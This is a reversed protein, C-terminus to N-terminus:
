SVHPADAVRLESPFRRLVERVRAVVDDGDASVTGTVAFHGGDLLHLVEDLRTRAQQLFRAQDSSNLEHRVLRTEAASRERTLAVLRGSEAKLLQGSFYGRRLRYDTTFQYVEDQGVFLSLAGNKRFGFVIPDAILQTLIETRAVLGSAEALIDERDQEERAM